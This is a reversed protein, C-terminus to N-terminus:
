GPVSRFSWSWQSGPQRDVRHRLRQLHPPHSFTDPWASGVVQARMNLLADLSPDAAAEYAGQLRRLGDADAHHRGLLLTLSGTTARGSWMASVTRELRVSALHAAVAAADGRWTLVDTRIANLARLTLLDNTLYSYPARALTFAAFDLAAAREILEFAPAAPAYVAELAPLATHDAQGAALQILLETATRTREPTDGLPTAQVRPQLSGRSIESALMAAAYYIRAADRQEATMDRVAARRALTVPEGRRVIDQVDRAVRRAEYADWVSFAAAPLLVIVAAIALRRIGPRVRRGPAAVNM